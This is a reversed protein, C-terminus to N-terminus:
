EARLLLATRPPQLANKPADLADSQEIASANWISFADRITCCIIMERKEMVRTDNLLLADRTWRSAAVAPSERVADINHRACFFFLRLLLM